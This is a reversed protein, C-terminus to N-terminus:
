PWLPMAARPRSFGVALYAIKTLLAHVVGQITYLLANQEM